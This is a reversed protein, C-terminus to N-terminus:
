RIPGIKPPMSIDPRLAAFSIAALSPLYDMDSVTFVARSASRIFRKAAARKYGTMEESNQEPLDGSSTKGCRRLATSFDNLDTFLMPFLLPDAFKHTGTAGDSVTM